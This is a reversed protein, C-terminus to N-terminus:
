PARTLRELAVSRVGALAAIADLVDSGDAGHPVKVDLSATVAGPDAHHDVEWARITSGHGLAEIAASVDGPRLGASRVYRQSGTASVTAERPAGAVRVYDAGSWRVGGREPTGSLHVRARGLPLDLASEATGGSPAQMGLAITRLVRAVEARTLEPVEVARAAGNADWTVLAQAGELRTLGGEVERGEVTWTLAEVREIVLLSRRGPVDDQLALTARLDVRGALSLAVHTVTTQERLHLDLRRAVTDAASASGGQASAAAATTSATPPTNAGPTSAASHPTHRPEEDTGGTCGSLTLASLWVVAVWAVTLWAPPLRVPALWASPLWAAVLGARRPCRAGGAGRTM